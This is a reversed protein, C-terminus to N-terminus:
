PRTLIGLRLTKYIHSSEDTMSARVREHINAKMIAHVTNQDAQPSISVHLSQLRKARQSAFVACPLRFSPHWRTQRSEKQRPRYCRPMIEDKPIMGFIPKTSKLSKAEGGMPAAPWGRAHSRALPADHVLEIQVFHWALPASSAGIRREQFVHVPVARGAMKVIPNQLARIGDQGHGHIARPLCQMPLRWLPTKQGELKKVDSGTSGCHPCVPGNPWVRAELWERAKTNDTFIPNQLNASM